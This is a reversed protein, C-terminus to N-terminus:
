AKNVSSSPWSQGWEGLFSCEGLERRSREAYERERLDEPIREEPLQYGVAIMALCEFREPIAFEVRIRAPDYGGMQHVMLGLATAQVCLSMAAAGTDYQGWRSPRGDTFQRDGCALMLLPAGVAWSRNGESLCDYARQWRERDTLRDWILFRWPQDGFCSPSWRAAELLATLVAREVPRDPDYARGSWRSALVDAIEVATVARKPFM